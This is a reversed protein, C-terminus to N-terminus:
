GHFEVSPPISSDSLVPHAFNLHLTFDIIHLCSAWAFENGTRQEARRMCAPGGEGANEKTESHYLEREGAM